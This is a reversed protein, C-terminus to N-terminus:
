GHRVERGQQRLRGAMFAQCVAEWSVPQGRLLYIPQLKTSKSM